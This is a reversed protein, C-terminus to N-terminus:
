VSMTFNMAASEKSVAAKKIGINVYEYLINIYKLCYPIFRDKAVLKNHICRIRSVWLIM